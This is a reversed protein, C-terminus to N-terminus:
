LPRDVLVQCTGTKIAILREASGGVSPDRYVLVDVPVSGLTANAVSTLAGLRPHAARLSGDCSAASRVDFQRASSPNTGPATTTSTAGNNDLAGANPANGLERSRADTVLRVLAAATAAHGVDGLDTAASAASGATSQSQSGTVGGAPAFPVTTSPARGASSTAKATSRSSNTAMARVGAIALAIVVVAAAVALAPRSWRSIAAWRSGTTRAAAVTVSAVPAEEADDRGPADLSTAVAKLIQDRRISPSPLAVPASLGDLAARSQSVRRDVARRDDESLGDLLDLDGDVVASALQDLDDQSLPSDPSM